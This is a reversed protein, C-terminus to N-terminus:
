PSHKNKEKFLYIIIIILPLILIVPLVAFPFIKDSHLLEVTNSKNIIPILCIIFGIMSLPIVFNKHSKCKFIGSLIYSFMFNYIILKLMTAPFWALINISQVREIFDYAEVQRTFIFYPNWCHQAYKIGLVTITPILIFLYSVGFIGLTKAFIKNINVNQSLFFSFVLIILIETYRAGTLFAGNNLQMFTSDALFPKLINLDVISFSMLLFIIITLIMFPVIFVSM